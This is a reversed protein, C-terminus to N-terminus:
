RPTCGGRGIPLYCTQADQPCDSDHQCPELCVLGMFADYGSDCPAALFCHPGTDSPGVQTCVLGSECNGQPFPQPVCTSYLPREPPAGAMPAQAGSTGLAMPDAPLRQSPDTSVAACGALASAIFVFLGLEYRYLKPAKLEDAM